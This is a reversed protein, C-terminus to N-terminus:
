SVSVTFTPPLHKWLELKVSYPHQLLEDLLPRLNRIRVDCRNTIGSIRSIVQICFVINNYARPLFRLYQEFGILGALSTEGLISYDVSECLGKLQNLLKSDFSAIDTGSAFFREAIRLLQKHFRSHKGEERRSMLHWDDWTRMLLFGWDNMCGTSKLRSDINRQHKDRRDRVFLLGYSSLLSLLAAVQSYYLVPILAGLVFEGGFTDASVGVQGLFTRERVTHALQVTAYFKNCAENIQNNALRM